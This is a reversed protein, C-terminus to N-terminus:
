RTVRGFIKDDIGANVKYDDFSMVVDISSGFTPIPLTLEARMLVRSLVWVGHV